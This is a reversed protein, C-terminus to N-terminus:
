FEELAARADAIALMSRGYSRRDRIILTTLAIAACALSLAQVIEMVM